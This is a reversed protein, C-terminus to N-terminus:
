AFSMGGDTLQNQMISIEQAHESAVYELFTDVAVYRYNPNLAIKESLMKYIEFAYYSFLAYPYFYNQYTVTNKTDIMLFESDETCGFDKCGSLYRLAWISDRSRNPFIEPCTKYLLHSKIGGGIVGYATYDETDLKEFKLDAYSKTNSYIAPNYNARYENAFKCLNTVIKLLLNADAAKFNARYKDLDKVKRSALTKRIIPCKNKLVQSKFIAPSDEYEELAEVNFFNEYDVRDKEFDAIAKDIFNRGRKEIFREFYGNFNERIAALVNAIHEPKYCVSEIGLIYKDQSSKFNTAIYM